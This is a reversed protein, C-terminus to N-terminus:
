QKGRHQCYLTWARQYRDRSRRAVRCRQLFYRRLDPRDPHCVPPMLAADQRLGEAHINLDSLCHIIERDEITWDAFAPIERLIELLGHVRDTM